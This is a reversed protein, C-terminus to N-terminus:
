EKNFINRIVIETYHEKYITFVSMFKTETWILYENHNM